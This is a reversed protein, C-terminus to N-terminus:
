APDGAPGELDLRDGDRGKSVFQNNRVDPIPQYNSGRRDLDVRDDDPADNAAANGFGPVNRSNIRRARLRPRLRADLSGLVPSSIVACSM